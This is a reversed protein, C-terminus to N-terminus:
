KFLGQKDVPSFDNNVSILLGKTTKKTDYSRRQAQENLGQSQGQPM